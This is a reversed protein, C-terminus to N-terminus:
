TLEQDDDLDDDLDDDEQLDFCDLGCLTTDGNHCLDDMCPAPGGGLRCHATM